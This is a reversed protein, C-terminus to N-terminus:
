LPKIDMEMIPLFRGEVKTKLKGVIKFGIQEYFKVANPDSDLIAKQLGMRRVRQLFDNMLLKGYGKGIFEPELFLFNLKVLKKNEPQFAYFGIVEDSLVLKFVENKAIYNPTITLDDIWEQIQKAGYNWYDKSRITLNTLNNADARHAKEIKM